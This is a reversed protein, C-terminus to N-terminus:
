AGLKELVDLAARAAELGGLRNALERAALLTELTLGKAGRKTKGNNARHLVNSVLAASVKNAKLAKIIEAPRANPHKAKYDRILQSKNPKTRPM